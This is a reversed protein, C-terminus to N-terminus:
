RGHYQVTLRDPTPRLIVDCFAIYWTHLRLKFVLGNEVLARLSASKVWATM